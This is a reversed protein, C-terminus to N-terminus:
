CSTSHMAAAGCLAVLGSNLLREYTDLEIIDRELGVPLRPYRRPPWAIELRGRREIWEPFTAKWRKMMVQMSCECLVDAPTLSWAVAFAEVAGRRHGNADLCFGRKAWARALEERPTLSRRDYIEEWRTGRIPVPWDLYHDDPPTDVGEANSIEFNIREGGPDDWRFFM